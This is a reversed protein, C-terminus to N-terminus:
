ERDELHDFFTTSATKAVNVKTKQGNPMAPIPTV